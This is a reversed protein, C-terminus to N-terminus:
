TSKREAALEDYYGALQTTAEEHTTPLEGLAKRLASHALQAAMSRARAYGADPGALPTTGYAWQEILARLLESATIGQEECAADVAAVLHAPLRTAISKTSPDRSSLSPSQAGNNTPM